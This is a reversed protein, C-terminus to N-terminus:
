SLCYTLIVWIGLLPQKGTAFLCSSRYPPRDSHQRKKADMPAHRGVCPADLITAFHRFILQDLGNARKKACKKIKHGTRSLAFGWTQNLNLFVPRPISDPAQASKKTWVLFTQQKCVLGHLGSWKTPLEKCVRDPNRERHSCPMLLSLFRGCHAGAGFCCLFIWKRDPLFLIGSREQCIEASGVFSTFGKRSM